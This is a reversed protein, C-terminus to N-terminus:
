LEPQAEQWPETRLLTKFGEYEYQTTRGDPFLVDLGVGEAVKKDILDQTTKIAIESKDVCLRQTSPIGICIDKMNDVDETSLGTIMITYYQREM